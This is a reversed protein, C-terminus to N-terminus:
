LKKPLRNDNIDQGFYDLTMARVDDVDTYFNDIIISNLRAM